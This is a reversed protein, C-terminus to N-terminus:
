EVQDARMTPPRLLYVIALELLVLSAVTQLPLRVGVLGAYALSYTDRGRAKNANAIAIM